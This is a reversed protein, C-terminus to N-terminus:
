CTGSRRRPWTVGSRRARGDRLRDGGLLRADAALRASEIRWLADRLHDPMALVTDLLGDADHARIDAYLDSM